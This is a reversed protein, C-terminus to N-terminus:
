PQLDSYERAVPYCPCSKQPNLDHHGLILARPYSQHLEELLARLAARQQPTRTDAPKGSQIGGEYCIGISHSNHNKCHSGVMTEDRGKHITGDTEIYYHYGIDKWHNHLIHDRRCQAFPYRHRPDTASCHVIILTISRM